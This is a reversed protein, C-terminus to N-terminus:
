EKQKNTLNRKISSICLIFVKVQQYEENITKALIKLLNMESITVGWHRTKPCINEDIKFVNNKTLYFFVQSLIKQKNLYDEQILKLFDHTLELNSYKRQVYGIAPGEHFVIENEIVERGLLVFHFEDEDVDACSESERVIPDSYVFSSDKFVFHNNTFRGVDAVVAKPYKSFVKQCISKYRDFIVCHADFNTKSYM